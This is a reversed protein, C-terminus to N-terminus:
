EEDGYVSSRLSKYGGQVSIALEDNDLLSKFMGVQVTGIAIAVRVHVADKQGDRDLRAVVQEFPTPTTPAEVVLMDSCVHQLGDVGMGASSPQLLIVRCAPDNIFRQIARQKNPASVEGYVAVVNYKELAKSLYRNTRIFHAAIVLKRDGLEELVEEILDLIAPERDPNEDFEGWNIIVQQLASRLAGASIADVEGGDEFEVLREQAIRRYLEMHAPALRYKVPTYLPEKMGQRADRLLIRLSHIKMNQALVDLNMWKTPNGYDDKEEIHLRNFQRQNRYVGPAILKIYAYADAPKNVPTGTLPLFIRNEAMLAVAKHNDSEINKVATAEDAIVGLSKGEFHAYLREFDNKLLGYSLLVFDANLNLAHRKKPTGEYVTTTLPKGTALHTISRLWRDWQDLLIPPMLVMWQRVGSTERFYLAQHSSCATKGVGPQFYYGARPYQCLYNTGDVQIPRLEFPFAWRERVTEYPTM